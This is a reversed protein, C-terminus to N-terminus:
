RNHPMYYISVYELALAIGIGHTSEINNSFGVVLITEFSVYSIAIPDNKVPNTWPILSLPIYWVIYKIGM